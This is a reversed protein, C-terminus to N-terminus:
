LTNRRIKIESWMTLILIWSSYKEMRILGLRRGTIFVQCTKRLQLISYKYVQCLYIPETGSEPNLVYSIISYRPPGDHTGDVFHFPFGDVDQFTVNHLYDKLATYARSHFGQCLETANHGCTDLWSPFFILIQSLFEPFKCITFLTLSCTSLTASLTFTPCM